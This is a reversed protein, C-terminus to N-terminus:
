RRRLVRVARRSARGLGPAFSPGSTTASQRMEVRRASRERRSKPSPRAFSGLVRFTADVTLSGRADLERYIWRAAAVQQKPVFVGTGGRLLHLPPFPGENGAEALQASIGASILASAVLDAMSRTAFTMLLTSDEANM